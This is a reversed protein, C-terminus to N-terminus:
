RNLSEAARHQVIEAKEGNWSMEVITSPYFAIPNRRGYLEAVIEGVLPLHSIVLATQVGQDALVSLYDVVTQANGYPTIGDWTEMKAGLEGNFAANVQTFTQQARVYPSVLVRWASHPASFNGPTKSECQQLWKGQAFAQAKGQETLERLQDTPALHASEGHRM